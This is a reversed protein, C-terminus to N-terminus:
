VPSSVMGSGPSIEEAASAPIRSATAGTTAWAMGNKQFDGVVNDRCVVTHAAGDDYLGYIGLGHQNGNLPNERIATVRVRASSSAKASSSAMRARIPAPFM